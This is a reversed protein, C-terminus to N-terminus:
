AFHTCGHTQWSVKVMWRPFSQKMIYALGIYTEEKEGRPTYAWNDYGLLDTTSPDFPQKQQEVAPTTSVVDDSLPAILRDLLPNVVTVFVAIFAFFIAM